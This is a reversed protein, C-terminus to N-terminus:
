YTITISHAQSGTCIGTTCTGPQGAAISGNVYFIQAVGTGRSLLPSSGGSNASTGLALSYNVGSITSSTADLALTYPLLNTCNTIFSTNALVAPGFSTYNFTINGPPTSFNCTAPAIISV